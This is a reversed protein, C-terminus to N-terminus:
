TSWTCKLSGSAIDTGSSALFQVFGYGTITPTGGPAPAISGFQTVGLFTTPFSTCTLKIATTPTTGVIGLIVSTKTATFIVEITGKPAASARTCPTLTADLSDAATKCGTTTPIFLAGDAAPTAPTPCTPCVVPSPCTPCTPCRFIRFLTRANADTDYNSTFYKQFPNYNPQRNLPNRREYPNAYGPVHAAPQYYSSVWPNPTLGYADYAGDAGYAYEDSQLRTSALQQVNQENCARSAQLMLVVVSLILFLMSM